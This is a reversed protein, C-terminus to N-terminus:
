QGNLVFRMTPLQKDLIARMYACLLRNARGITDADADTCDGGTALQGLLRVTAPRVRWDADGARATIGGAHPDFQYSRREGIPKGTDADAAVQPRYGCDELLGWQFRLLAAPLEGSDRSEDLFASLLEFLRPHPDVDALMANTVDAAYMALRQAPLHTRLHHYDNQLDWETINALESTPRTNAVVQGLTLLDVGGSFRQISGPSTRKSGKALGRVKGHQATLLVVVQSTESWDIHRICVAQDKIRAM